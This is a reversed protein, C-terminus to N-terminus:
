TSENTLLEKSEFLYDMDEPTYSKILEAKIEM